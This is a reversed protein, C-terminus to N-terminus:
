FRSLCVYLGYVDVLIGMMCIGMKGLNIMCNRGLTKTAVTLNNILLRSNNELDNKPTIMCCFSDFSYLSLKSVQSIPPFVSFLVLM